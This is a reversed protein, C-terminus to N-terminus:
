SSSRPTVPLMDEFATLSDLFTNFEAEKQLRMQHASTNPVETDPLYCAFGHLEAPFPLDYLGCEHTQECSARLYYFPDAMTELVARVPGTPMDQTGDTRLGQIRNPLGLVKLLKDSSRLLSVIRNMLADRVLNHDQVVSRLEEATSNRVKLSVQKLRGADAGGLKKLCGSIYRNAKASLKKGELDKRVHRLESAIVQDLFADRKIFAQDMQQEFSAFMPAFFSASIKVIENGHHQSTM